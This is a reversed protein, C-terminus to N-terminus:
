LPHYAQYHVAAATDFNLLVEYSIHVVDIRNVQANQATKLPKAVITATLASATTIADSRHGLAQLISVFLVDRDFPSTKRVTSRFVISKSLDPAETTSFVAGCGQCQRRRWTHNFRKQPRSNIVDTKCHCYICVM